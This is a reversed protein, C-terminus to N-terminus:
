APSPRELPFTDRTRTYLPGSLRGVADLAAADVRGTNPDVIGDRAAIWVVEGLVITRRPGLELTLYRRCELAVPAEQIRPAGVKAAPVPTLGARDLESIGDPYDAACRNMAPALADDVINVTFEGRRSINRATHKLEGNNLTEIGLAVLCPDYSLANFFSYPAANVVGRHDVTTVLAIPRPVVVGTLLRYVDKPALKALDFDAPM